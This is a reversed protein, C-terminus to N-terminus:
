KKNLTDVGLLEQINILLEDGDLIFGKVWLNDEEHYYEDEESPHKAYYIDGICVDFCSNFTSPYEKLDGKELHYKENMINLNIEDIADNLDKYFGVLYDNNWVDNLFVVYIKM